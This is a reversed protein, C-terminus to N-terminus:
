SEDVWVILEAGASQCNLSAGLLLTDLQQLRKYAQSKPKKRAADIDKRRTRPQFVIVRFRINTGHKGIAAIHCSYPM